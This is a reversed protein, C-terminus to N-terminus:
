EALTVADAAVNLMGHKEGNITLAYVGEPLSPLESGLAFSTSGSHRGFSMMCSSGPQVAVKMEISGLRTSSSGTLEAQKAPVLRLNEVSLFCVSSSIEM